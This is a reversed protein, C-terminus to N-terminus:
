DAENHRALCWASCVRSATWSLIRPDDFAAGAESLWERQGESLKGLASGISAAVKDRFTNGAETAKDLRASSEMRSLKAFYKM